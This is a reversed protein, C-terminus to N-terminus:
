ANERWAASFNLSKMMAGSSGAITLLKLIEPKDLNGGLSRLRTIALQRGRNFDAIQKSKGLTDEGWSSGDAFEVYDFSLVAIEGKSQAYKAGSISQVHVKSPAIGTRYIVMESHDVSKSKARMVYATVNQDRSNTLRVAIRSYLSSSNDTSIAFPCGPQELIEFSVTQAVSATVQRTQSLVSDTVGFLAFLITATRLISTKM